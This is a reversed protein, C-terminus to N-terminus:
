SRWSRPLAPWKPSHGLIAEAQAMLTASTTIGNIVATGGGSQPRFIQGSALPTGATPRVQIANTNGITLQDTGGTGV